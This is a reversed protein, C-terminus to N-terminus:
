QDGSVVVSGHMNPHYRCSYPQSKRAPAVLRWSSDPALNGSDWGSDRATVTHPVLDRNRWEITDGPAANVIPPQFAIQRITVVYLAPRHTPRSAGCGAGVVAFMALAMLAALRMLAAAMALAAARPSGSSPRFGRCSHWIAGIVGGRAARM